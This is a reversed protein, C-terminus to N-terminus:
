RCRAFLLRPPSVQFQGLIGSVHEASVQSQFTARSYFVFRNLLYFVREQASGASQHVGHSGLFAPLVEGVIEPCLKFFEHYRSAVEFFQLAVADNPYSGLRAQCVRLMMEGVPSLPLKTYDVQYGPVSKVKQNEETSIQVFPMSGTLSLASGYSYLNFLAVEATQWPLAEAGRTSYAECTSLVLQEVATRYLAPAVAAVNDMVVGFNKRMSELVSQDDSLGAEVSERWDDEDDFELKRFAVQILETLFITKTETLGQNPEHAARKRQKKFLSLANSVFPVTALITARNDDSLLRLALPLMHTFIDLGAARAEEPMSVDESIKTAEGGAAVLLKSLALRLMEVDDETSSDPLRSGDDNRGVNILSGILNPIELVSLLALKDQAPMGKNIADILAEVATVRLSTCSDDALHLARQFLQITDPSIIYNMDIWSVYDGVVRFAMEAMQRAEAGRLGVRQGEYSQYVGNLAENIIQWVATAVDGADNARVADRLQGDLATRNRDRSSRIYADSIETSVEHLVRLLFETPPPNYLGDPTPPTSPSYSHALAILNKFFGPAEAPYIVLFLQTALRATANKLVTRVPLRRAQARTLESM